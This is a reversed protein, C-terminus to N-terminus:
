RRGAAVAARLAPAVEGAFREVQGPDPRSPWFIYTDFGLELSWAAFTEVWHEVPGDLLGDGREGDTITGDVNYLRRVAAPDRGARAAAEDIVRMGEAAQEPPVYSLSPIWGDAARGTLRLMRPRIAGLWIEIPHAPAPGTHAGSLAYHEGEVRVGRDVRWMARIVALAEELADVSEPGTRRPGGLAAVAPWFAGAGLGLEFRGGSLLDLTAAAKALVAPPRLPLSAVDPFCRLRGTEALLVALLSWTDVFRAQYPHDQIGLLDLGAEDAVRALARIDDLRAAEPVLSLGLEIPRGHDPM